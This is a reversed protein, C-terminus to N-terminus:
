NGTWSDCIHTLFGMQKCMIGELIGIEPGTGTDFNETLNKSHPPSMPIHMLLAGSLM